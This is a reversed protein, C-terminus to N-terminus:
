QLLVTQGHAISCEEDPTEDRMLGVLITKEDIIAGEDEPRYTELDLYIRVM